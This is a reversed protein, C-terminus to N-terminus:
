GARELYNTVVPLVLFSTPLLSQIEMVVLFNRPFDLILLAAFLIAFQM